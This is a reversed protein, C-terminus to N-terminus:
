FVEREELAARLARLGYYLRSKVTGDPVGLRGAIQRTDLGEWYAASIVARHDDSLTRLADAVLSREAVLALGPDDAARDLADTTSVARLRRHDRRNRSAAVNRAIGFIWGRETGREPDYQDHRRWARLVTEQVVEEAVQADSFRRRSWSHLAPGHAEYLARALDETDREPSRRETM